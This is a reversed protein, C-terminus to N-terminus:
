RQVLVGRVKFLQQEVRSLTVKLKQHNKEIQRKQAIVDFITNQFQTNIERAKHLQAKLDAIVFRLDADSSLTEGTIYKKSIVSGGKRLDHFMLNVKKSFRNKENKFRAELLGLRNGDKEKELVVEQYKKELRDLRTRLRGLELEDQETRETLVRIADEQFRIKVKQHLVTQNAQSLEKFPFDELPVPCDKLLGGLDFFDSRGSSYDAEEGSVALATEFNEGLCGELSLVSKFATPLSGQVRREEKINIAVIKGNKGGFVGFGLVQSCCTVRGTGVDGFDKTVAFPADPNSRRKYQVVHGHVDGAFLSQTVEDFLVTSIRSGHRGFTVPNNM